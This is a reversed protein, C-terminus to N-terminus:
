TNKHSKKTPFAKEIRREAEGLTVTDESSMLFERLYQEFTIEKKKM